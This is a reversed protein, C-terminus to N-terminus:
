SKLGAALLSWCYNPHWSMFYGALADEGFADIKTAAVHPLSYNNVTEHALSQASRPSALLRLIVATAPILSLRDERLRTMESECTGFDGQRTWHNWLRGCLARRTAGNYADAIMVVFGNHSTIGPTGAPLRPVQEGLAIRVVADCLRVGSIEANLTECIRPNVEIYTPQGTSEDYFYELTIPGHWNLHEGLREAHQIVAPHSASRRLAPGGGIGTALVDTCAIGVLRGDQFVVNAEAQRGVAPQQIVIENGESWAGSAEFRAISQQMENADAVRQVGLSATSHALKIFCPFEDYATLESKSRVIQGHPTPLGLERMLMVFEAKSQVRSIAEFSPVALGVHRAFADRFKAFVYVQEHTPFLVDYRKEAVLRAVDRVYGLPDKAISVCAIRRRVM